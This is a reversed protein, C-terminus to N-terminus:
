SKKSYLTAICDPRVLKAGFVHLGKIADAFKSEPRYADVENIQDAYSIAADVGACVYWHTTSYTPVNNSVRIEFGECRGVVGNVLAEYGPVGALDTFASDRRLLGHYWPPVICFRGESPVNAEDLKVGLESVYQLSKAPTDVVTEGIKNAAQANLYLSAVYQDVKDRLKYAGRKMATTLMRGGGASQQRDVDDVYFAFYNMQDIVLEQDAASLEEPTIVTQNPKYEAITPDSISNIIVRDGAQRIEGEYDRNVAGPGAFVLSKELAELIVASWVAPIFNKVSM